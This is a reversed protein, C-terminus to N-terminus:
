DADSGEQVALIIRIMNAKTMTTAIGMSALIAQLETNSLEALASETYGSPTEEVVPLEYLEWELSETLRYGYGEPATPANRIVCKIGLFEEETIEIGAANDGYSLATLYGKEISKYFKM